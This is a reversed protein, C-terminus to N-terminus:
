VTCFAPGHIDFHKKYVENSERITTNFVPSRLRRCPEDRLRQPPFIAHRAMLFAVAFSALSFIDGRM